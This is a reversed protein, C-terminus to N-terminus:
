KNLLSLYKITPYFAIFLVLFLLGMSLYIYKLNFTDVLIGMLVLSSMRCGSNVTQNIGVIQTLYERKTYKQITANLNPSIFGNGIGLLLFLIVAYMSHWVIFIGIFFSSYFIFSLIMMHYPKKITVIKLTIPILVIGMGIAILTSAIGYLIYPNTAYYFYAINLIKLGGAILMILVELILTYKIIKNASIYSLSTKFARWSSERKYQASSTLAVRIFMVIGVEIFYTIADILFALRWSFTLIFGGTFPTIVGLVIIASFITNNAWVIEDKSVLNPILSQQIIGLGIFLFICITNYYILTFINLWFFVVIGSVGLVILFLIWIKKLNKKRLWLGFPISFAVGIVVSIMEFMSLIIGSHYMSYVILPMAFFSLMSGFKSASLSILYLYFNKHSMRARM